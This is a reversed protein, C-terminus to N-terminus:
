VIYPQALIYVSCTSSTGNSLREACYRLGHFMFDAKADHLFINVAGHIIILYQIEGDAM